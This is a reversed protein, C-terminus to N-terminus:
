DSQAMGPTFRLPMARRTDDPVNGWSGTSGMNHRAGSSVVRLSEEECDNNARQAESHSSRHGSTVYGLGACSLIM